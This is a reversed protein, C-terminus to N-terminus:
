RNCCASRRDLTDVPCRSAAAPQWSSITALRRVCRRASRARPSTTRRRRRHRNNAVITSVLESPAIAPSTAAIGGGLTSAHNFAITSNHAVIRQAPASSLVAAPRLAGCRRAASHTTARSRRIAAAHDSSRHAIASRRLVAAPPRAHRCARRRVHAHNDSFTSYKPSSRISRMCAAAASSARARVGFRRHQRQDHQPRRRRGDGRRLPNRTGATSAAETAGIDFGFARHNGSITSATSRDVHGRVRSTCSAVVTASGDVRNRPTATSRAACPAHDDGNASCAAATARRRRQKRATAASRATM